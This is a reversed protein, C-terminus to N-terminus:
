GRYQEPESSERVFSFLKEEELNSSSSSKESAINAFCIDTTLEGM